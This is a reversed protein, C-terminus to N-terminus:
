FHLLILLLEVLLERYTFKYIKTTGFYYFIAKIKTKHILTFYNLWLRVLVFCICMLFHM